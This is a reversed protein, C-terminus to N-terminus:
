GGCLACIPFFHFSFDLQFFLPFVFVCDFGELERRIGFRAERLSTYCISAL